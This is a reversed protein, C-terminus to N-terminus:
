YKDYETKGSKLYNVIHTISREKAKQLAKTFDFFFVSSEGTSLFELVRKKKKMDYLVVKVNVVCYETSTTQMGGFNNPGGTVVRTTEIRNNIEFFPIDIIYDTTSNEKLFDWNNVKGIQVSSFVRNNKLAISIADTYSKAFVKDDSFNKKYTKKFDKLDVNDAVTVVVTKSALEEITEKKIVQNVYHKKAICSTFFVVGVCLTFVKRLGNKM